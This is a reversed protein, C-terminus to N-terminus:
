KLPKLKINEATFTGSLHWPDLNMGKFLIRYKTRQAICLIKNILYKTKLKISIKKLNRYSNILFSIIQNEIKIFINNNEFKLAEIPSIFFNNNKEIFNELFNFDEDDLTNVHICLQSILPLNTPLPM